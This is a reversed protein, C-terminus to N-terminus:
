AGTRRVPVLHQRVIEAQGPLRHVGSEFRAPVAERAAYCALVRSWFHRAGAYILSAIALGAIVCLILVLYGVLFILLAAVSQVLVNVLSFLIM